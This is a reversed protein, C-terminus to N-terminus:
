ESFTIGHYSIQELEDDYTFILIERRDSVLMATSASILNWTKEGVQRYHYSITANKKGEFNGFGIREIGAPKLTARKDGLAVGIEASTLNIFLADGGRFQDLDIVQARFRLPPPLDPVPFLIVLSKTFGGPIKVSALRKHKPAGGDDTDPKVVHFLGDRTVKIPNGLARKMIEVETLKDGILVHIPSEMGAPLSTAMIWAQREKPAEAEATQARAQCTIALCGLILAPLSRNMPTKM